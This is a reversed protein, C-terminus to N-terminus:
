TAATTRYVTGAFDATMFRGRNCLIGRPSLFVQNLCLVDRIVPDRHDGVAGQESDITANLRVLVLGIAVKGAVTPTGTYSHSKINCTNM